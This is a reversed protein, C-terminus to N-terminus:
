PVYISFHFSFLILCKFVILLEVTGVDSTFNEEQKMKDVEKSIFNIKTKNHSQQQYLKQSPMLPNGTSHTKNSWPNKNKKKKRM